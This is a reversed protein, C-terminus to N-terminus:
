YFTTKAVSTAKNIKNLSSTDIPKLNIKYKTISDNKKLKFKTIRYKLHFYHSSILFNLPM